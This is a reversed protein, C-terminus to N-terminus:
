REEVISAKVKEVVEDSLDDMGHADSAHEAAAQLVQEETEGRVTGECGPVVNTCDFKYAM